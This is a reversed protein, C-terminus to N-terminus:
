LPVFKRVLVNTQQGLVTESGVAVVAGEADFTAARFQDELGAEGSYSSSWLLIGDDRYVRIWANSQEGAAGRSGVAAVESAPGAAVGIGDDDNDGAETQSWWPDLGDDLSAVVLELDYAEDHIGVLALGGDLRRELDHAAFPHEVSLDLPVGEDDYFVTVSRRGTEYEVLLAVDGTAKVSVGNAYDQTGASWSQSWRLEGTEPALEAVWADYDGPGVRMTAAVVVNGSPDFAVDDAGDIEDYEGPGAGPGDFVQSWVLSQTAPDVMLVLVDDGTTMSETAGAIAIRGDQAIALAEGGDALLEAGGWTFTWAATGDPLYQQLWVDSAETSLRSTGVVYISGDPAIAVDNAVDFSSAPGDYTVTWAIEFPITCAASCEDGDENNGDDCAEDREVIGNGCDPDTPGTTGVTASTGPTSDEAGTDPDASPNGPQSPDPRGDDADAGNDDTRSTHAGSSGGGTEGADDFSVLPGCGIAIVALGVLRRM